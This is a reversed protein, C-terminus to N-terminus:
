IQERIKHQMKPSMNEPKINHISSANEEAKKIVEETNGKIVSHCDFEALIPTIIAIIVYYYVKKM